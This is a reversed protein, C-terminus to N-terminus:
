QRGSTKSWRARGAKDKPAVFTPFRKVEPDPRFDDDRASGSEREQVSALSLHMTLRWAREDFCPGCNTEPTVSSSIGIPCRSTTGVPRSTKRAPPSPWFPRAGPGIILRGCRGRATANVSWSNRTSKELSRRRRGRTWARCVEDFKTGTPPTNPAPTPTGSNRSRRIPREFARKSGARESARSCTRPVRQRFYHVGNLRMPRAMCLPM